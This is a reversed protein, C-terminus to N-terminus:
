GRRHTLGGRGKLKELTFPNEKVQKKKKYTRSFKLILQGDALEDDEDRLEVMLDLLQDKDFLQIDM